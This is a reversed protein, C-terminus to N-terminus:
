TRSRTQYTKQLKSSCGGEKNNNQGIIRKIGKLFKNIKKTAHEYREFFHTEKKITENLLEFDPLLM